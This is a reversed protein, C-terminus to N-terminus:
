RWWLATAATIAGVIVGAIARRRNTPRRRLHGQVLIAVAFGIGTGAVLPVAAQLIELWVPKPHITPCCESPPAWDRFAVVITLAMDIPLAIAAVVALTIAARAMAAAPPPSSATQSSAHAAVPADLDPPM